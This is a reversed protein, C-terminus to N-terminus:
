GNNEMKGAEDEIADVLGDGFAEFEELSSIEKEITGYQHHGNPSPRFDPHKLVAHRAPTLFEELLEIAKGDEKSLELSLSDPTTKITIKM